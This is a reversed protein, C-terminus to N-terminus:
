LLKNGDGDNNKINLKQLVDQHIKIREIYHYFGQSYELFDAKISMNVFTLEILEFLADTQVEMEHISKVSKMKETIAIFKDYNNHLLKRFFDLDGYRLDSAYDKVEKYFKILLEIDKFYEELYNYLITLQVVKDTLIHEHAIINQALCRINYNDLNM